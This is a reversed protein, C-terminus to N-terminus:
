QGEDEETGMYYNLRTIVTQLRSMESYLFRMTADEDVRLHARKELSDALAQADIRISKVQDKSITNAYSAVTELEYTVQTVRHEQKQLKTLDEDAALQRAEQVQELVANITAEDLIM